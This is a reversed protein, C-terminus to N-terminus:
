TVAEPHERYLANIESLFDAEDWRQSLFKPLDCVDDVFGLFWVDRPRTWANEMTHLAGKMFGAYRPDEGM